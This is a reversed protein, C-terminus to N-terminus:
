ALLSSESCSYESHDNFQAYSTLNYPHVYLPTPLLNYTHLGNRLNIAAIKEFSGVLVYIAVLTYLTVM